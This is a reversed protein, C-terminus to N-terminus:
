LIAFLAFVIFIVIICFCCAATTSSNNKDATSNVPAAMVTSQITYKDTNDYVDALKVAVWISRIIGILQIILALAIMLTSPTGAGYIAYVVFYFFWPFEYTLGELIWNKNNHKLGIYIFGFGNLFLIISFIVWWSRKIKEITNM